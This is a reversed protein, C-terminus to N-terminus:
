FMDGTNETEENIQHSLYIRQPSDLIFHIDSFARYNVSPDLQWTFGGYKFSLDIIVTSYMPNGLASISHTKSLGRTTLSTKLLNKDTLLLGLCQFLWM